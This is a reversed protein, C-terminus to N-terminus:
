YILAIELTERTVDKVYREASKGTGNYHKVAVPLSRGKDQLEDLIWENQQAQRRPNESVKGWHRAQVQWAGRSKGHDGVAKPNGRSEVKAMSASLEPRKTAVVAQTMANPSPSGTMVFYRQLRGSLSTLKQDFLVWYGLYSTKFNGREIKPQEMTLSHAWVILAIVALVRYGKKTTVREWIGM